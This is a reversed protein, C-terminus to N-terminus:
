RMDEDCPKSISTLYDFINFIIITDKYDLDWRIRTFFTTDINAWYSGFRFAGNNMWIKYISLDIAKLKSVIKFCYLTIIPM